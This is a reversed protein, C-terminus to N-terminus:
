VGSSRRVGYCVSDLKSRLYRRADTLLVAVVLGVVWFAITYQTMMGLSSGAGLGLWYRADACALLRVTFFAVMVWWLYDFAFYMIVTGGMLSVPAIFVLLASLLHANGKVGM